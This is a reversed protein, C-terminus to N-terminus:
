STEDGAQDPSMYDFYFRNMRMIVDLTIESAMYCVVNLTNRKGKARAKISQRCDDLEKVGILSSDFVCYLDVYYETSVDSELEEYYFWFGILKETYKKAVKGLKLTDKFYVNLDDPIAQRKYRAALWTRLLSDDPHHGVIQCLSLIKKNVAVKEYANVRLKQMEPPVICLCFDYTRANKGRLNTGELEDICHCPIIEASQEKISTLDCTHSVVLGYDGPIDTIGAIDILDGQILM